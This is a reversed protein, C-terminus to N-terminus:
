PHKLRLALIKKPQVQLFKLFLFFYLLRQPIKLTLYVELRGVSLEGISNKWRANGVKEYSVIWSRYCLDSLFFSFISFIGEAFKNELETNGIAKSAQCMQRLLEELRRM